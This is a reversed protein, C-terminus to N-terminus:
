RVEPVSGYCFTPLSFPAGKLSVVGVVAGGVHLSELSAHACVSTM